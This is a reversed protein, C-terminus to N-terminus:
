VTQNKLVRFHVMGIILTKKEKKREKKGKRKQM